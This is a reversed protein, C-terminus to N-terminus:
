NKITKTKYWDKMYKIIAKIVFPLAILFWCAIMFLEIIIAILFLWLIIDLLLLTTAM